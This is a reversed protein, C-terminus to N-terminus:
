GSASSEDHAAIPLDVTFTAGQNVDSVVSITGGHASVIERAIWLGLGLGHARDPAVREFRDFIRNAHAPSIGMGRDVVLVRVKDDLLECSLDVPSGEGYKFANSVLNSIVQDLRREDWVGLCPGSTTVTITTGARVAEDAFREGIGCVLQALDLSTRELTLRGSTVRTVDLLDDVLMALRHTQELTREVRAAAQQPALTGNALARKLGELQLVVTALPTRLEHGAVSLFDDRSRIATKAAQYARAHGIATGARRGLERAMELDQEDFRHQSEASVFTIAGEVRGAALIPVGMASRIGQDHLLALHAGERAYTALRAADIDTDLFAEGTRLVITVPSDANGEPHHTRRMREALGLKALDAHAVAVTRRKGAELLEVICWDAIDPILAEAIGALTTEYHLSSALSATAQALLRSSQRQRQSATADYFFNLALTPKGSRDLIASARVLSWRVANSERDRIGVILPEPTEGALARRGPLRQPDIPAGREDIVEFRRMIEVAPMALMASANPFGCVRAATDNAYLLGGTADQVTVGDTMRRLLQDVSVSGFGQGGGDFM